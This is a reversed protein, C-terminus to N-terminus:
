PFLRFTVEIPALVAVPHGDPGLAPKLKWKKVTKIANEDLGLGVGKLVKIQGIQGNANVVAELVIAGQFKAARAQDSYAPTPCHVCTPITTGCTGGRPIGNKPSPITDSSLAAIEDTIPVLGNSVELLSSSESCPSASLSVGIGQPYKAFSGMIVFHAGLARAWARTKEMVKSPSGFDPDDSANAAQQSRDIVELGPFDKQLSESLRDALYKGVPHSQGDPGQLEAVIIKKAHAKRLIEAVRAALGSIASDIPPPAGQAHAPIGAVLLTVMMVMRSLSRTFIM